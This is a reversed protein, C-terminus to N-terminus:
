TAKTSEQTVLNKLDRVEEELVSIRMDEEELKEERLKKDLRLEDIRNANDTLQQEM